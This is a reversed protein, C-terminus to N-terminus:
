SRKGLTKTLSLGPMASPGCRANGLGFHPAAAAPVSRWGGTTSMCPSGDNWTYVGGWRQHAYVGCRPCYFAELDLAPAIYENAM